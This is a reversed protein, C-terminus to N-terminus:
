IFCAGSSPDPSELPSCLEEPDSTNYYFASIKAKFYIFLTTLIVSPKTLTSHRSPLAATNVSVAKKPKVSYPHKWETHCIGGWLLIGKAM